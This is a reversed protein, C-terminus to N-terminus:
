MLISSNWLIYSIMEWLQWDMRMNKKSFRLKMLHTNSLIRCNQATQQEIEDFLSLMRRYHVKEHAESLISFISISKQHHFYQDPHFSLPPGYKKLRNGSVLGRKRWIACAPESAVSGATSKIVSIKKGLRHQLISLPAGQDHLLQALSDDQSGQPTLALHNLADLYRRLAFVHMQLSFTINGCGEEYLLYSKIILVISITLEITNKLTCRLGIIEFGSM